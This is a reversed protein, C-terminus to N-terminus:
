FFDWVIYKDFNTRQMRITIVKDEIKLVTGEFEMGMDFKSAYVNAWESSIFGLEQNNLNSAIIANQDYNNNYDRKFRVKDGIKLAKVAIKRSGYTIGVIPINYFPIAQSQLEWTDIVTNYKQALSYYMDNDVICYKYNTCEKRFANANNLSRQDWFGKIEIITNDSLCIDPMYNTNSLNFCLLQKNDFFKHYEFPTGNYKLIRIINAETTSDTAIKLDARYQNRYKNKQLYWQFQITQQTIDQNKSLRQYGFNSLVHMELLVFCFNAKNLIRMINYSIYNNHKDTSDKEKNVCFFSWNDIQHLTINYQKLKDIQISNFITNSEKEFCFIVKNEAFLSESKFLAAVISFLTTQDPTSTEANVFSKLQIREGNHIYDFTLM